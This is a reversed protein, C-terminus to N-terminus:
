YIQIIAQLDSTSLPSEMGSLIGGMLWSEMFVKEQNAASTAQEGPVGGGGLASHVGAM